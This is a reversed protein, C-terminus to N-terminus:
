EALNCSLRTLNLVLFRAHQSVPQFRVNTCITHSMALLLCSFRTDWATVPLPSSSGLVPGYTQSPKICICIAIFCCQIPPLRLHPPRLHQSHQESAYERFDNNITLFHSIFASGLLSPFTITYFIFFFVFFFCCVQVLYSSYFIYFAILLMYVKANNEQDHHPHM